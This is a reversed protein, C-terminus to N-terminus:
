NVQKSERNRKMLKQVMRKLKNPPRRTLVATAVPAPDAPTPILYFAYVRDRPMKIRRQYERKEEASEFFAVSAVSPQLPGVDTSFDSDFSMATDFGTSLYDVNDMTLICGLSKEKNQAGSSLKRLGGFATVEQITKDKSAENQQLPGQLCCDDDLGRSSLHDNPLLGRFVEKIQELV